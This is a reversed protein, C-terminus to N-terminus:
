LSFVPRDSPWSFYIMQIPHSPCAHHLWKWTEQSETLVDEWGVFSGHSLICVPIHPQLSQTLEQMNAQRFGTCPDFRTVSPCFVPASKDFNQPSSQTGVIWYGATMVPQMPSLDAGATEVSPLPPVPPEAFQQANATKGSCLILMSCAVLSVRLFRRVSQTVSVLRVEASITVYPRMGHVAASWDDFNRM